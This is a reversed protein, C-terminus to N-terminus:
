EKKDGGVASAAPKKSAPAPAALPDQSPEDYGAPGSPFWGLGEHLLAAEHNMVGKGGHNVNRIWQFEQGVPETTESWGRVRTWEDRADAGEVVAKVGEIDAIWYKKPETM